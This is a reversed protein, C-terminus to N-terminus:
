IINEYNIEKREDIKNKTKWNNIIELYYNNSYDLYEKFLNYKRLTNYFKDM